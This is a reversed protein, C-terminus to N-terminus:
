VESDAWLGFSTRTLNHESGVPSTGTTKEVVRYRLNDTEKQGPYLTYEPGEAIVERVNGRGDTYRHGTKILSKKM